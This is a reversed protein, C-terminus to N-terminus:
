LNKRVSRRYEAPTQNTERKFLKIFHSTNPIGVDYGIAHIAIDTQELLTKAERIRLQNLYQLPSQGYYTHFERCLRFKSILLRNEFQHLTLPTRYEHDMISKMEQLYKPIPSSQDTNFQLLLADTLIDTLTKSILFLIDILFFRFWQYM